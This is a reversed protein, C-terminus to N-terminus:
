RRWIKFIGTWSRFMYPVNMSGSVHGAIFEDCTRVDLYKHGDRILEAAKGVSVLEPEVSTESKQTYHHLLVWRSGRNQLCPHPIKTLLKSLSMQHLTTRAIMM